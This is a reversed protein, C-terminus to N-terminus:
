KNYFVKGPTTAASTVAARYDGPVNILREPNTPTLVVVTGSDDTAPTFTGDPGDYYLTVQGSGDMNTSRFAAVEGRRVTFKRSSTSVAAVQTTDEILTAM